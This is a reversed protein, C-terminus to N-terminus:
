HPNKHLVPDDMYLHSLLRLIRIVDEDQISYFITQSSRRTKVIQARRLRCLHQSLASQSLGPILTEIQSVSREKGDSLEWLIKLRRSNGIVRLIDTVKSYTQNTHHTTDDKLM